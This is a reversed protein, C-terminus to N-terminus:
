LISVLMYTQRSDDAYADGSGSTDGCVTPSPSMQSGALCNNSRAPPIGSGPQRIPLVDPQPQPRQQTQLQIQEPSQRRQPNAEENL